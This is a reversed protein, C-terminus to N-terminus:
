PPIGRLVAVHNLTMTAPLGPWAVLPQFPYAVAVSAQWNGDADTPTCITVTLQGADFAAVGSMEDTVAANVQAQWAPMTAATFPHNSGFGAGSRAANTVAILTYAFRGFDLAGLVLTMLLPLLVAFETAALGRRPCYRTKWQKKM